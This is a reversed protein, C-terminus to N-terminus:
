DRIKRRQVACYLGYETGVVTTYLQHLGATHLHVVEVKVIPSTRSCPETCRRGTLSTFDKQSTARSVRGTCNAFDQQMTTCRKGTFSTFDKQYSATSRRGTCNTFDQQMTSYEERTCDQSFVQQLLVLALLLHLATAPQEMRRREV